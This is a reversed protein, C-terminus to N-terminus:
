KKNLIQYLKSTVAKLTRKPFDYASSNYIIDYTTEIEQAFTDCSQSWVM